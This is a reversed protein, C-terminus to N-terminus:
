LCTSRRRGEQDMTTGMILEEIPMAAAEAAVRSKIRPSQRLLAMGKEMLTEKDLSKNSESMDNENKDAELQDTNNEVEM